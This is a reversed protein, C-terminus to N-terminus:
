GSSQVSAVRQYINWGSELAFSLFVCVLCVLLLWFVGTISQLGLQRAGTTGYDYSHACAGGGREMEWWKRKLRGLTGDAELKLLAANIPKRLESRIPLGIGYFIQNLQGGVAELDCQRETVYEATNSEMFFVYKGNENRVREVGEQVRDTLMDTSNDAMKRWLRRRVESDSNRFFAETAGERVLGYEMGNERELDHLSHIPQYAWKITLMPGLTASYICVIFITFVITTIRLFNLSIPTKEKEEPESKKKNTCFPIFYLLLLGLYSALIVIWVDTTFPDLFSFQDIEMIEGKRALMQIGGQMFPVSFDIVKERAETITLDAVAMDAKKGVLEGVMGSWQGSPEMAGYKDVVKIKYRIKMMKGLEKTLDVGFGEFEMNGRVQDEQHKRMLYPPNEVMVVTLEKKAGDQAGTGVVLALSVWSIICYM